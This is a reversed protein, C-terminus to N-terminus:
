QELNSNSNTYMRILTRELTFCFHIFSQFSHIFSHCSDRIYHIFYYVYYCVGFRIFCMVTLICSALLLRSQVLGACTLGAYQFLIVLSSTTQSALLPSRTFVSFFHFVKEVSVCVVPVPHNSM